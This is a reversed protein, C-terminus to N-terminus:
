RGKRIVFEGLFHVLRSTGGVFPSQPFNGPCIEGTISTKVTMKVKQTFFAIFIVYKDSDLKELLM